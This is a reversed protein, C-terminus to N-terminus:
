PRRMDRAEGSPRASTATADQARAPREGMAGALYLFVTWLSRSWPFSAFLSALACVSILVIQLTQPMRPFFLELLAWVILAIGTACAWDIVFAGLWEGQDVWFAADCESCRANMRFYWAFIAGCGCRPCRRRMARGLLTVGSVRESGPADGNAREAAAEAGDERAMALALIVGLGAMIAIVALAAGLAFIMQLNSM